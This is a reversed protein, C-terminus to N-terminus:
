HVTINQKFKFPIKPLIPLAMSHFISQIRVSLVIDQSQVFVYQWRIHKKELCSYKNRILQKKPSNQLNLCYCIKQFYFMNKRTLLLTILLASLKAMMWKTAPMRESKLCLPSSVNIATKLDTQSCNIEALLYKIKYIQGETHRWTSLLVVESVLWQIQRFKSHM